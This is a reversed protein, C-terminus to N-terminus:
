TPPVLSMGLCSSKSYNEALGRKEEADPSWAKWRGRRRGKLDVSYDEDEEAEVLFGHRLEEFTDSLIPDDDCDNCYISGTKADM